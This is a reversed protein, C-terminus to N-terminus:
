TDLSFRRNLTFFFLGSLWDFALVFLLSFPPRTRIRNFFLFSNFLL